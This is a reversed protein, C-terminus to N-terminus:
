DFQMARLQAEVREKQEDSIYAAVFAFAYGNMVAAYYSQRIAVGQYHYTLHMVFFEKTGLKVPSIESLQDVALQSSSLADKAAELYDRGDKVGIAIKVNEAIFSINPNFLAFVATDYSILTILAATKKESAEIKKQLAEDEKVAADEGAKSISDAVSNDLVEWGPSIPMHLHFFDNIYTNGEVRGYDFDDPIQTLNKCSSLSILFLFLVNITRTM